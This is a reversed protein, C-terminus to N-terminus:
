RAATPPPASAATTAHAAHGPRISEATKQAVEKTSTVRFAAPRGAATSAAEACAIRRAAAIQEGIWLSGTPDFVPGTQAWSTTALLVVASAAVLHHTRM